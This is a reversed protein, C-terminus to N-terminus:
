VQRLFDLRPQLVTAVDQLLVQPAAAVLDRVRSAPLNTGTAGTLFSYLEQLQQPQLLLVQPARWLVSRNIDSCSLGWSQLVLIVTGAQHPTSQNIVAGTQWLLIGCFAQQSVGYASLFEKWSRLPALLLAPNRVLLKEVRRMSSRPFLHALLNINDACLDLECQDATAPLVASALQQATDQPMCLQQSLQQCLTHALASHGATAHTQQQQCKSGSCAIYRHAYLKSTCKFTCQPRIHQKHLMIQDCSRTRM